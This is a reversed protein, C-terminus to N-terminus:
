QSIHKRITKVKTPVGDLEEWLSFLQDKNGKHDIDFWYRYEDGSFNPGLLENIAKTKPTLKEKISDEDVDKEFIHVAEWFLYIMKTKPSQYRAWREVQRPNGNPYNIEGVRTHETIVKWNMEKMKEMIASVYVDNDSEKRGTPSTWFTMEHTQGDKSSVTEQIKSWGWELVKSEEWKERNSMKTFQDETPPIAM